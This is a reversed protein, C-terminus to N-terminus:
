ETKPIALEPTALSAAHEIVDKLKAHENKIEGGTALFFAEKEARADINTAPNSDGTFRARTLPHMMGDKDRVWGNEFRAERAKTLSVKNRRFDEIFSYLGRLTKKKTLTSFTAVHNWERDDPGRFYAAFATRDAGDPDATVLFRYTQGLKWDLDVFSQGGTGEGGFRKVRTKAGKALLKVREETAVVDPNDQQGPDWVSFIVVKRGDGLEQIGFYGMDFGCAMFYTGDASRTPTMENYFATAEPAPYGLHVSRCAIGALRDDARTLVVAASTVTVALLFTLRSTRM